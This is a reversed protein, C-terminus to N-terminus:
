TQFLLMSRRVRMTIKLLKAEMKWFKPSINWNRSTLVIEM